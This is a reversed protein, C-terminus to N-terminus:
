NKISIKIALIQASVQSKTENQNFNNKVKDKFDTYKIAILQPMM